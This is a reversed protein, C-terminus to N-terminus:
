MCSCSSPAQPPALLNIGDEAACEARVRMLTKGLMNQGSGDGGDGWFRDNQTHETIERTGTLLLLKRLYEAQFKSRLIRYMIECRVELWDPREDDVFQHAIDFAQRPGPALRIMEAAADFAVFKAAQFAHESTPYVKGDIAIDVEYFNTFEYFPANREYFDIRQLKSVIKTYLRANDEACNRCIKLGTLSGHHNCSLTPTRPPPATYATQGSGGFAANGSSASSYGVPPGHMQSRCAAGARCTRCCHEGPQGNFSFCPCNRNACRAPGQAIPPQLPRPPAQNLANATNPGFSAGYSTTFRGNYNTTSQQNGPGSTAQNPNLAAFCALCVSAGAGAPSRHCRSCYPISM